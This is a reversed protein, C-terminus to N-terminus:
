QFAGGGRGGSGQVPLPLKQALFEEIDGLGVADGQQGHGFAQQLM